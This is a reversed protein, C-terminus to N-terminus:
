GTTKAWSAARGASRGGAPWFTVEVHDEWGPYTGRETTGAFPRPLGLRVALESADRLHHLRVWAEEGPGLNLVRRLTLRVVAQHRKLASRLQRLLETRPTYGGAM